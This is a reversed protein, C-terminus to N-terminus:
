RKVVIPQLTKTPATRHFSLRHWPWDQFSIFFRKKNVNPLMSAFLLQFHNQFWAKPPRPHCWHSNHQALTSFVSNRRNHFPTLMNVTLNQISSSRAPGKSCDSAEFYIPSKRDHWIGKTKPSIFLRLQKLHRTWRIVSMSVAARSRSGSRWFFLFLATASGMRSTPWSRWISALTKVNGVYTLSKLPIPYETISSVMRRRSRSSANPFNPFNSSM